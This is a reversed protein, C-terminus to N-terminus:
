ADCGKHLETLAGLIFAVVGLMVAALVVEILPNM